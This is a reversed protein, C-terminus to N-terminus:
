QYASIDFIHNAQKFPMMADIHVCFVFNFMSLLIIYLPHTACWRRWSGANTFCLRLIIFYIAESNPRCTASSDGAALDRKLRGNTKLIDTRVNLDVALLTCRSHSFFSKFRDEFGPIAMRNVLTKM